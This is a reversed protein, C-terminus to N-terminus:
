DCGCGGCCVSHVGGRALFWLMVVWATRIVVVAVVASVCKTVRGVSHVGGPASSWFMVVWATSTVVSVWGVRGVSHM